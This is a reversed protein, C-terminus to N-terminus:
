YKPTLMWEIAAVVVEMLHSRHSADNFAHDFGNYERYYLNSKGSKKFEEKMKRASEVPAMLDQSGHAIYIPINLDLLANSLRLHAISNWWAYTNDDGSYSRTYTANSEILNLENKATDIAKKIDEETAGEKNKQMGIMVPWAEGFNLAGGFSLISVAKVNPYFCAIMGALLGGESGGIVYVNGDWWAAHLKLYQLVRLYDYLRNYVTNWRKYEMTLSDGTDGYLVGQKEIALGVARNEFIGLIQLIGETNSDYGSGQCFIIVPQKVNGVPQNHYVDIYSDNLRKIRLHVPKEPNREISAGTAYSQGCVHLLASAIVIAVFRTKM